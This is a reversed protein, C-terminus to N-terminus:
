SCLVSVRYRYAEMCWLMIEGSLVKVMFIMEMVDVVGWICMYGEWEYWLCEEFMMGRGGDDFLMMMGCGGDDFNKMLVNVLVVWLDDFVCVVCECLLEGKSMMVKLLVVCVGDNMREGCGGGGNFLLKLM